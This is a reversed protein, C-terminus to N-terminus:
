ERKVEVLEDGHYSLKLMIREKGECIDKLFYRDGEWLSLNMIDEKPIWKLEGEPCDETLEGEFSDCKYLFMEENDWTDSVFTIVGLFTYGTVTLGTEERVERIMCETPSENEELKGGVGIWKGGNVDNPKKNRYLMLFKGDRELYALTSLICPKM